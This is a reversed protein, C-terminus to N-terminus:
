KLLDTKFMPEMVSGTFEGATFLLPHSKGPGQDQLRGQQKGIFGGTVKVGIAAVFDEGQQM